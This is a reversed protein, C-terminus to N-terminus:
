RGDGRNVNGPDVCPENGRVTCLIRYAVGRLNEIDARLTDFQEGRRAQRAQVSDMQTELDRLRSPVEAEYFDRNLSDVEETVGLQEGWADHSAWGVAAATGIAGLAAVISAVMRAFSGLDRWTDGMRSLVSQQDDSM